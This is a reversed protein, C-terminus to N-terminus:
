VNGTSGPAWCSGDTWQDNDDVVPLRVTVGHRSAEYSVTDSGGDGHIVDHGASAIFTDGHKSGWILEINRLTDGMAEGATGTATDLDVTVGSGDAAAEAGRYAAWDESAAAAAADSDNIVGDNNTDTRPLLNNREGTDEGGDLTDAGPGGVLVDAGAAGRLTDDGGGGVLQNAFRDGTLHDNHMSGTVNVFTAVEIEQENDGTGFTYDYTIIEDGEAHGGSASASALDVRVGADSGAYSLTNVQTNADTDDRATRFGM